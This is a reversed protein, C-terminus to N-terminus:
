FNLASSYSSLLPGVAFPILLLPGVILAVTGIVTWKIYRRTADAAKLTADLKTNIADLGTKLEPDMM